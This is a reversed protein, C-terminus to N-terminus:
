IKVSKVLQELKIIDKEISLVANKFFDSKTTDIGIDKFINDPSKSGGASLFKKIQKGFNKDKKLEDNLARSIIQGYSYSYVYFFRRFHSWTVFNLGDIKQMKVAPGLYASMHKNHLEGIDDASLLGKARISNHLETEFNFAAIQRFITEIDGQIKDHLAVVKEKENLKEFMVDFAMQEFFTSATEAVPTVYGEYIVPQSKSLESHIAHGMEHAFTMLSKFDDTQNLLVVTPVNTSASMYAGGTKGLKPYVDIQGNSLMSDLIKAYEPDADKFIPHLIEYADKFSIKKKTSGVKASRDCYEMTNLKLMKKKLKYFRNSIGFSGTVTDVLNIISKEGNEYGLVTASYPNKFGRLEDSIKKNLVVANMESEAFDAILELKEAIAKRLDKRDKTNLNPIQYQAEGISMVKGKFKVTKKSISKEVGNVWLGHSPLSKLNMIKEEPETLDHKSAEFTKELLYHYKSLKKSKLFKDQLKKEIKGLELGFFLTKNEYETLENIIKNLNAEAEEDKGNIDKRYHFYLVSKSGDTLLLKEYDQLAKLLGDESKLYDSNGAYKKEFLLTTKKSKEIDKRIQPDTSSKYFLNLDWKTKIKIM